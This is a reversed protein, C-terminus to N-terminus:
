PHPSISKAELGLNELYSAGDETSLSMSYGEDMPPILGAEVAYAVLGEFRTLNDEYRVNDETSENNKYYTRKINSFLLIRSVHFEYFLAADGKEVYQKWEGGNYHFLFKDRNILRWFNVQEGYSTLFTYPGTVDFVQGDIVVTGGSVLTVDAPLIWPYGWKWAADGQTSCLEGRNTLTNYHCYWSEDQWDFPNPSYWVEGFVRVTDADVQQDIVRTTHTGPNWYYDDFYIHGQGDWRLQLGVHLTPPAPTPPPPETPVPIDALMPLYLVPYPGSEQGEAKSGAASTIAEGIYAFGVFGLFLVAFLSLLLGSYRSNM